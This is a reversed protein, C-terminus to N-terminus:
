PADRPVDEGVWLSSQPSRLNGLHPHYPSSSPFKIEAGHLIPLSGRTSIYSGGGTHTAQYAEKVCVQRLKGM